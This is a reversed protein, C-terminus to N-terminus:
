PKIGGEAFMELIEDGSVNLIKKLKILTSVYPERDGWIYRYVSQPAISLEKALKHVSINRDELVKGFKTIKKVRKM